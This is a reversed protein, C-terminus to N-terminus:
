LINLIEPNIVIFILIVSIVSIYISRKSFKYKKNIYEVCEEFIGWLSLYWLISVVSLIVIYFAHREMNMFLKLSM